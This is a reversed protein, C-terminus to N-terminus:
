DGIIKAVYTWKGSRHSDAVADLVANVRIGDIIDPKFMKGAAVHELFESLQIAFSSHWGISHKAWFGRMGRHSRELVRIKKLGRFPEEERYDAVYLEDPRELDFMIAGKDGYVEISMYNTRGPLIRASEITGVAGSEFEVIVSTIDDNTVRRYANDPGRREHIFTRSMAVLREMNGVLMLALDIVHSGNDGIVGYGSLKVDFRWAFGVGPLFAWDELFAGRFYRIKGVFGQRVLRTMYQVAPLWRHNFGVAVQVGRDKVEEYIELAEKLSRALPKESLVHKGARVAEILPDRHEHNPLALIVVSVDPDNVAKKWDTYYREFGFREAFDKAKEERKSYVAVPRPLVRGIRRAGWIAAAHARGAFGTGM